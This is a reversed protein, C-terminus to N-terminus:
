EERRLSYERSVEVKIQTAGPTQIIVIDGYGGAERLKAVAEQMSAATGPLCYRITHLQGKKFRLVVSGDRGAFRRGARQIEELQEATFLDGEHTSM